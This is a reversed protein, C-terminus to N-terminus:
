SITPPDRTYLRKNHSRKRNLFWPLTAQASEITM